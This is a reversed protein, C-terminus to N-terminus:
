ACVLSMGKKTLKHSIIAVRSSDNQDSVTVREVYGLMVLRKIEQNEPTPYAKSNSQIEVLVGYEKQTPLEEFSPQVDREIYIGLPLPISHGGPSTVQVSEVEGQPDLIAFLGSYSTKM